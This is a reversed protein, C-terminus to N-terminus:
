LQPSIISQSVARAVAHTRNSVDLKRAANELHFIITRKSVGLIQSTEWTTKGEAAWLLCEKERNTLEVNGVPLVEADFVRRVAEHIHGAVAHALPIAADIARELEDHPKSSGLSLMSWESGTSHVPFSVGSSLGFDRAESMVVAGKDTTDECLSLDKWVIPVNRTACHAVTPDANIYNANEYRERWEVPYGSIIAICPRVFSTSLQAGFIFHDFGCEDCLQHSIGYVADITDAKALLEVFDRYRYPSM